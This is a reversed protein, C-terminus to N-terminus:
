TMVIRRGVIRYGARAFSAAMPANGADTDARIVEASEAALVATGEALLDDVFGHGRHEPVVGVYGIVPFQYNRSPMVLGVLEGDATSATRWWTRPAPMWSMDELQVRAAAAPGQHDLDRRAHADLTGVNIRELLDLLAPDDPAPDFRLRGSSAPVGVARDWEFRLREVFPRLGAHRAAAIREEAGARIEPRDHGDPPLFLHLQAPTGDATLVAGSDHARRLLRAGVAIRDDDPGLDFWDLAYPHTDDPGGWWAARAVVRDGRRALWTWEPRYHQDAATALFDRGPPGFAPGGLVLTDFLHLEGAALPRITVDSDTM